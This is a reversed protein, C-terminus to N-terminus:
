RFAEPLRSRWENALTTNGRAEAFRIAHILLGTAESAEVAERTDAWLADVPAEPRDLALWLRGMHARARHCDIHTWEINKDPDSMAYAELLLQHAQDESRWQSRAVLLEASLCGFELATGDPELESYTALAVDAAAELAPSPSESAAAYWQRAVGAHNIRASEYDPRRELAREFAAQAARMAPAPDRGVWSNWLGQTWWALGLTNLPSIYDPHADALAALQEVTARTAETPDDGLMAAQYILSSRASLMNHKLRRDDPATESARELWALSSREADLAARINGQGSHMQSFTTWAVALNNMVNTDNPRIRHVHELLQLSRDLSPRPDQGSALQQRAKIQLSSGLAIQALMTDPEIELAREAQNIALTLPQDYPERNRRLDKARQWLQMASSALLEPDDRNLQLGADCFHRQVADQTSDSQMTRLSQRASELQCGIQYAPRYSRVSDVLQSLEAEVEDLADLGAAGEVNLREIADAAASQLDLLRDQWAAPNALTISAPAETAVTIQNLTTGIRAHLDAPLTNMFPALDQRVSARLQDVLDPISAPDASLGVELRRRGFVRLRARAARAAVLGNQYGRQWAREARQFAMEPEGIADLLDAMAADVRAAATGDLDDAAQDLRAVTATAAQEAPRQDHPPLLQDVYWDGRAREAVAILDSATTLAQRNREAMVALVMVAGILVTALAAGLRARWPNLRAWRALRFRRGLMPANVAQGAMFSELDNQLQGADGYRRAPNFELCRVIIRALGEPVRRVIETVPIIQGNAAQMVLAIPTDARYPLQETLLQYLVVGLAYVDSRPDAGEDGRAQEPAMYGPTGLADGALTLTADDPRRALGFDMVWVHAKGDRREVMLNGPKLDRHVVGKDHAFKMADLVQCFTTLREDVSKNALAQDLPLGDVLDMAIYHRDLHVGTAHVPLIHPHNLDAQTRAERLMREIAAPEEHRLYKIAIDRELTPCFARVVEGSAGQALPIGTHWDIEPRSM